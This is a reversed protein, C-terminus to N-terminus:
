VGGDGRLEDLLARAQNLHAQVESRTTTLESRLAASTANPLLVMDILNLTMDHMEVQSSTYALDFQTGMPATNLATLATSALTQVTTMVASPAPTGLAMQRSNAATHMTVMMSAFDKVPTLTGKTQALQGAMIEGDNVAKAVGLVQPETLAVAADGAADLGADSPLSSDMGADLNTSGDPGGGDRNDVDDGDDDDGCGVGLAGVLSLTLVLRLCKQAGRM